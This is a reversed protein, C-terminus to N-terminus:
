SYNKLKLFYKNKLYWDVTDKIGQDFKIKCVFGLEKKIKKSNLSYRLDHGKRDTVYKIQKIYSKKKPCIEDLYNCIKTVLENNSIEYNSGINYINGIKGKLM